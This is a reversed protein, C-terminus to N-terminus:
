IHTVILNNSIESDLSITGGNIKLVCQSGNRSCIIDAEVGPYLGMSAMRACTKRDGTVKCVKIKGGNHGRSLPSMGGNCRRKGFCSRVKDSFCCGMHKGKRGIM